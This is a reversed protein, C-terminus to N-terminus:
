TGDPPPSSVLNVRDARLTDVAIILLNPRSPRLSGRARRAEAEGGVRLVVGLVLVTVSLLHLRHLAVTRRLRRGLGRALFQVPRRLASYVAVAGLLGACALEGMLVGPAVRSWLHALAVIYGLWVLITWGGEVSEAPSTKESTRSLLSAATLAWFIFLGAGFVARAPRELIEPAEAPLLVLGLALASTLIMALAIRREGVEAAEEGASPRRVIIWIALFAGVGVGVMAGVMAGHNALWLATRWLGQAFYRNASSEQYAIWLGTVVGVCAPFAAARRFVRLWAKM